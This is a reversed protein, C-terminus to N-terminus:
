MVSDFFCIDNLGQNISDLLDGDYSFYCKKVWLYHITKVAVPISKVGLIRSMTLRHHGNGQQKHLEGYRDICIKIEDYNDKEGMQFQTKYGEEKIREFINSLKLFYADVDKETMCRRAAINDTEGNQVLSIMENYQECEKYSKKELFIHNVAKCYIYSNIYSELSVKSAIDWDGKSIFYGERYERSPRGGWKILNLDVYLLNELITGIVNPRFPLKILPYVQLAFSIQTKGMLRYIIKVYVRYFSVFERDKNRSFSLLARDLSKELLDLVSFNLEAKSTSVKM